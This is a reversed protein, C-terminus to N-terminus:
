EQLCRLEVEIELRSRLDSGAQLIIKSNERESVPPTAVSVELHYLYASQNPSKPVLRCELSEPKTIIAIPMGTKVKLMVAARKGVLSEKTRSTIVVREPAATIVGASKVYIPLVLTYTQGAQALTLACSGELSGNQAQPAKLIVEYICAGLVSRADEDLDNMHRFHPVTRLYRIKIARDSTVASLPHLQYSADGSAWTVKIEREIVGGPPVGELRLAPPELTPPSDSFWRMFIEHPSAPDNSRIVLKAGSPGPLRRPSKLVIDQTDTPTISGPSSAIVCACSTAIETIKLDGTGANHIPIHLDKGDKSIFGFDIVQSPTELQPTGSGSCGLELATVLGLSCILKRM